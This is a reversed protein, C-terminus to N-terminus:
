SVKSRAVISIEQRMLEEERGLKLSAGVLAVKLLLQKKRDPWINNHNM